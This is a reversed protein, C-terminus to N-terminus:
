HWSGSESLLWCSVTGSVRHWVVLLVPVCGWGNASLSGLIMILGCVGWFVAGSTSTGLLCSGAEDVLVCASAGEVLFGVCGVSGVKAM